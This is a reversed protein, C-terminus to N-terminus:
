LPTIIITSLIDLGGGTTNQVKITLRTGEYANFNVSFDDPNVPSTTKIVPVLDSSVLDAGAYVSVLLGTASQTFGMAINSDYPVFEFQTGQLININTSTLAITDKRQITPM